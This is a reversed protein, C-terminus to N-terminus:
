RTSDNEIIEYGLMIEKALLPIERILNLLMAAGKAGAEEYSYKVTTLTPTIAQSFDSYDHGVVKVDRPVNLGRDQLYKIAGVAVKDSACVVGDLDNYKNYLSEMILYGSQKRIDGTNIQEEECPLKADKLAKVFGKRRQKGNSIETDNFGIFVLKKCGKEILYNTVMYTAQYDNYYVCNCGECKQGIIVVPCKLKDMALRHKISVMSSLLIVGDVRNENFIRLYNLEKSVDDGTNGLLIQYGETELRDSIGNVVLNTAISNLRPIIVGILKTKKTRLTQAQPSPSYGTEEVVRRIAEKKEESVYGNNFYRSVAANSVGALKAIENITM